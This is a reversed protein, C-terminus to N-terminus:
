YRKRSLNIRSKVKSYKHIDQHDQPLRLLLLFASATLLFASACCAAAATSPAALLTLTPPPHYYLLVHCMAINTQSDRSAEVTTHISVTLALVDNTTQILSSFFVFYFCLLLLLGPVGCMCHLEAIFQVRPLAADDFPADHRHSANWVIRHSRKSQNPTWIVVLQTHTFESTSFPQPLPNTANHLKQSICTDVVCLVCCRMHAQGSFEAPFFFGHRKSPRFFGLRSASTHSSCRM